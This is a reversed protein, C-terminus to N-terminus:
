PQCPSLILNVSKSMKDVCPGYGDQRISVIMSYLIAVLQVVVDVSESNPLVQWVSLAGETWHCGPPPAFKLEIKAM